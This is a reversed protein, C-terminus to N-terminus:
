LQPVLEQLAANYTKVILDSSDLAQMQEMFDITYSDYITPDDAVRHYLLVLWTNTAAAHDLWGQFEEITTTSLMNQVKVRYIDFNNMSNYGADVSRHSQYYNDIIDIVSSDYDGYPSAFNQIPEGTISQLYSQSHELEYIAEGTPLQTLFPHTVTHSCIEHGADRFELVGDIAEQEDPADEIYTTAYCQTSLFGHTQLIPLATDTNDEHGDDFTLTVLPRNFGQAQYDSIEYDDTQIWGVKNLFLFVSVSEADSPMTFTESYEQWVTASDGAPQPTPLGQYTESGNGDIFM